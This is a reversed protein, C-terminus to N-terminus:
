LTLIREGVKRVSDMNINHCGIKLHGNISIVTYNSIRHGKIDRGAKIMTYLLKADDVAVKVSQSTEVRTGDLSIRLFDEDNKIYDIEYKEFKELDVKLKAEAAKKAKLEKAKQAEKAKALLEPRSVSKYIKQIEKFKETTKLKKDFLPYNILSEFKSIISPIYNEPKRAKLLLAYSARISGRVLDISTDTAFYQKYQRTAQTVERIHKATTVSYGSDDIWICTEGKIDKFEALLYHYGYSYIRDGYFFVNSSRGEEQSRQAFVHIVDTSNSFVKKM